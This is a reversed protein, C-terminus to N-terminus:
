MRGFNTWNTLFACWLLYHCGGETPRDTVLGGESFTKFFSKADKFIQFFYHIEDIKLHKFKIANKMCKM